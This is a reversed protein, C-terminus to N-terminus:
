GPMKKASPDNEKVTIKIGSSEKDALIFKVTGRKGTLDARGITGILITGIPTLKAVNNGITIKLEQSKYSGLAEEYIEIPNTELKITKLTV